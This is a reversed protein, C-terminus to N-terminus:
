SLLHFHTLNSMSLSSLLGAPLLLSKLCKSLLIYFGILTTIYFILELKFFFIRTYTVRTIIDEYLFYIFPCTRIVTTFVKEPTVYM